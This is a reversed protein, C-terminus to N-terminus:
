LMSVPNIDMTIEVGDNTKGKYYNDSIATLVEIIKNIDRCKIIIRWRYKRKIIRLPARAPGLVEAYAESNEMAQRIYSCIEKTKVFVKRDEAGSLIIVAINTFPPYELKERIKIEQKYFLEYDQKCASQISYEDTNYTQIIVRGPLDGRGARGAVQTILQFTREASYYDGINLLSDAALVGVLTVNHFDHGKAIMQTGIMININENKFRNLIEEHAGKCTTTDMDMRIVTSEPFYKLVEKEVKQTGTGFHKIYNSKCKPCIEPNKVTFGCYHCILREDNSHYTLSISCNPCKLVLGCKRCMVFSSHGRRNLFLMTQQKLEINRKIEYALKRSFMTRNGEDLENRMDVLEVQPMDMRNTRENMVLLKIEGTEARYYTEISPTASGYVLIGNDLICRQRAIERAHYKPTTESKYSTEHEEDIIIVGINKLPAFIASRAGVVVKINGEKILRWQDYREGPSLRSHLVAVRDGFRGKFRGTMQPTLSIEPVLVIATRGYELAKQILQM